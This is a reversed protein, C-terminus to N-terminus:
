GCDEMSSHEVRFWSFAVASGEVGDALASEPRSSVKTTLQVQHLCSNELCIPLSSSHSRGEMNLVEAAPRGARVALCYAFAQAGSSKGFALGGRGAHDDYIGATNRGLSIAGRAGIDAARVAQVRVRADHHGAAIRLPRRLFEGAHIPYGRHYAVAVLSERGLNRCVQCVSRPRLRGRVGAPRTGTADNVAGMQASSRNACEKRSSAWTIGPAWVRGLRLIWSPHALRQVKQTMGWVRPDERLRPGSATRRWTSPKTAAPPFSSTSDPILRPRQPRSRAQSVPVGRKRASSTRCIRERVASARRRSLEISGMSQFASRIPSIRSNPPPRAPEGRVGAAATRSRRRAAGCAGGNGARASRRSLRRRSSAAPGSSVRPASTM